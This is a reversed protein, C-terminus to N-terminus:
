TLLCRSSFLYASSRKLTNNKTDITQCEFSANRRLFAGVVLRSGFVGDTCTRHQRRSMHFIFHVAHFDTRTRLVKSSMTALNSFQFFDFFYIKLMACDSVSTYVFLKIITSAFFTIAFSMRFFAIRVCSMAQVTFYTYCFFKFFIFRVNHVFTAKREHITQRLPLNRGVVDIEFFNM